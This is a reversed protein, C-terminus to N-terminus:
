MRACRLSASARLNRLSRLPGRHARRRQPAYIVEFGLSRLEDAVIKSTRVERNGLEPHEHFDRRWAVVKPLIADAAKDISAHIAASNSTVAIAQKQAAQADGPAFLMVLAGFWLLRHNSQRM